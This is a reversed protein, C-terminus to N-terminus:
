SNGHETSENEHKAKEQPKERVIREINQTPVLWPVIMDTYGRAYCRMAWYGRDRDYLLADFIATKEVGKITFRYREGKVLDDMPVSVDKDKHVFHYGAVDDQFFNKLVSVCVFGRSRLFQHAPLLAESITTSVRREGAAAILDTLMHTGMGKRRWGPVVVLRTLSVTRDHSWKRAFYYGVFHRGDIIMMRGFGDEELLGALEKKDLPNEFAGKEASAILGLTKPTVRKILITAM